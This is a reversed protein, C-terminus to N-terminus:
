IWLHNQSRKPARRPGMEPPFFPATSTVQESILSRGVNKSTQKQTKQKKTLYTSTRKTKKEKKKERLNKTDIKLKCVAEGVKLFSPKVKSIRVNKFFWLKTNSSQNPLRKPSKKAWKPHDQPDKTPNRPSKSGGFRTELNANSNYDM